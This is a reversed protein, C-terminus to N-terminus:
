RIWPPPRLKRRDCRHSVQMASVAAWPVVRLCSFPRHGFCNEGIRRQNKLTLHQAAAQTQGFAPDGVDVLTARDRGTRDVAAAVEDQGAQDLQM